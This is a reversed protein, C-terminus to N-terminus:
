IYRTRETVEIATVTGSTITIANVGVSLTPFLREGNTGVPLTLNRNKLTTSYYAEKSACDIYVYTTDFVYTCSVGNIVFVVTGSGTVKLLPDSSVTGAHTISAPFSTKNVPTEGIVYRYPDEIVFDVKAKKFRVLKAYDIEEEIKANRYKLPDESCILVGTGNLWAIVTDVSATSKLGIVAPIVLLEYGLDTTTVGDKGAIYVKSTRKKPKKFWSISETIVGNTTDDVGNFTISSM